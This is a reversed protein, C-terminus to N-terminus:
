VVTEKPRAEGKGLQACFYILGSRLNFLQFWTGCLLYYWLFAPAKMQLYVSEAKMWLTSLKIWDSAVVNTLDFLVLSLEEKTETSFYPRNKRESPFGTM